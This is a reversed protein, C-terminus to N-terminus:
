MLLYRVDLKEATVLIYDSALCTTALILPRDPTLSLAKLLSIGDLEPLMLDLVLVDPHLQPLMTLAKSGTTCIHVDCVWRLISQLQRCFDESRDAILLRRQEM